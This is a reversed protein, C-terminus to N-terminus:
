GTKKDPEAQDPPEPLTAVYIHTTDFRYVLGAKKLTQLDDDQATHSIESELCTIFEGTLIDQFRDNGWDVVTRGDKLVLIWHRSLPTGSAPM